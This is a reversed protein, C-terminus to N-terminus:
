LTKQLAKEDARELAETIFDNEDRENEMTSFGNHGPLVKYDGPLRALRLVSDLIQDYDGGPFDTRGISDAFLTDGTFLAYECKLTVGGPTHGPTHIVEVELNGVKVVDGDDWPITEGCAATPYLEDNKGADAPHLYVKADPLHKRLEPVGGVHDFHGHTLFIYDLRLGMQKAANLIDDTYAGPDIVAGIGTSEDGLIYCNTFVSPLFIHQIMM